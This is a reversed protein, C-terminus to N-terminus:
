MSARQLYIDELKKAQERIDFGADQILQLTDTRATDRITELIKEAWREAPEQLSMVQVLETKRCEISVQDSILVSLGAAQAEISALSLGEWLSPFLFVDMAQLYGSVDEQVGAFVVSDELGKEKVLAHIEDGCKGKDNGVLLLRADPELKTLCEFVEVIFPHNKPPDIRGVHGVVLQDDTMGLEKRVQARKERDYRYKEADIANNLVSFPAGCFMWEGAKESCAMLETAYRSIFHRCFLKIPYKFDKEQSAGHSHAIRCPVGNRKAAKLIVASMCDQHVHIVRYERHEKFFTDLVKRYHPDLPNLTPLHYIQGGLRKIEEGYDGDYPRHTLFDFQVRSRDIQRYYNMLMTELGGRNMHTVVQLVRIM